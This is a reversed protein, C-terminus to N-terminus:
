HKEEEKDIPPNSKRGRKKKEEKNEEMKEIEEVAITPVFPTLPPQTQNNEEMNDFVNPKWKAQNLPKMTEEVKPEEKQGLTPVDRKFRHWPIM